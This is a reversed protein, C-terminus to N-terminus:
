STKSAYCYEKMLLALSDAYDAVIHYAQKKDFFRDSWELIVENCDVCLLGYVHQVAEENGNPSKLYEPMRIPMVIAAKFIEYYNMEFECFFINNYMNYSKNLRLLNGEAFYSKKNNIVDIYAFNKGIKTEDAKTTDRCTANNNGRACIRLIDSDVGLLKICARIEKKYHITLRDELSTLSERIFKLMEEQIRPDIPKQIKASIKKVNDSVIHSFGALGDLQVNLDNNLQKYSTNEDNLYKLDKENKSLENKLDEEIKSHKNKLDYIEKEKDDIINTLTAYMVVMSLAVFIFVLITRLWFNTLLLPAFAGAISVFASFFVLCRDYFKPNKSRIYKLFKKINKLKIIENDAKDM